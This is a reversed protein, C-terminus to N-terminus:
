SIGYGNQDIFGNFQFTTFPIAKSPPLYFLMDETNLIPDNLPVMTIIKYQAWKSASIRCKVSGEFVANGQIIGKIKPYSNGDMKQFAQILVDTSLNPDNPIVLKKKIVLKAM